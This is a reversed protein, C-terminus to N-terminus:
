HHKEWLTRLYRNVVLLFVGICAIMVNFSVLSSSYTYSFLHKINIFSYTGLYRKLMFVTLGILLLSAVTALLYNIFTLQKNRKLIDAQIKSMLVDNFDAPLKASTQKKLAEVILKDKEMTM